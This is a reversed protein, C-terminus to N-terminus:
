KRYIWGIVNMRMPHKWGAFLVAIVFTVICCILILSKFMVERMNYFMVWTLIVGVVSSLALWLNEIPFIERVSIDHEVHYALVLVASAIVIAVVFGIVVGMGGYMYGLGGGLLINLVGSILHFVTNWRLAGSGLNGMYAPGVLTNVFWAISLLVSFVVFIKEFHGIWLESVAPSLAVIGIYLPLALYMLLGYSRKYVEKVRCPAREHLAAIVPILVRNATVLLSRFQTVMRNAMEFYGVMSLSGFKSLLLKTVPEFLLLSIAAVQLNVGYGLMEFFLNKHWHCPVISLRPFEIILLVWLVVVLVSSQIVQAYALGMLGYDPVLGIVLFFYVSGLIINVTGVVDFRQEGELASQCVNAISILWLSLIAYPLIRLADPLANSHVFNELLFVLPVYAVVLMVAIFLGVSLIATEIVGVVTEPEDNSIYKAVFKVVSGSLGMGGVKSVSTAAVVVSWVGVQEVGITDLLYRYLVFLMVGSFLANALTFKVNRLVQRKM